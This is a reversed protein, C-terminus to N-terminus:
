INILFHIMKVKLKKDSIDIRNYTSYHNLFRSIEERWSLLSKDHLQLYKSMRSLVNRDWKFHHIQIGASYKNLKSKYPLTKHTTSDLFIHHGGGVILNGKALVIKKDWAKLLKNTILGSLPFQDELPIDADLEILKGTLSVRDILKGELFDIRNKECDNIHSLLGKPYFQFEDLDAYVVWVNESCYTLVVSREHFQKLQESFPETWSKVPNIGHDHLIDLPATDPTNLIILFNTIGLNKYYRLFKPLLRYDPGITVILFINEM